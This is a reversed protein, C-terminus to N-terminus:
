DRRDKLPQGNADVRQDNVVFYHGDGAEDLRPDPLRGADARQRAALDQLVRAQDELSLVPAKARATTREDREQDPM